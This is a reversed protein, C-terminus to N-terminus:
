LRGLNLTASDSGAPGTQGAYTATREQAVGSGSGPKQQYAGYIASGGAAAALITSMTPNPAMESIAQSQLAGSQSALNTAQLGHGSLVSRIRNIEDLGSAMKEQEVGSRGLAMASDAKELGTIQSRIDSGGGRTLAAGELVDTMKAEWKGTQDMTQGAYEGREYDLGAKAGQYGLQFQERSLGQNIQAAREAEADRGGM